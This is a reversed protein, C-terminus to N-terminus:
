HCVMKARHKTVNGSTEQLKEGKGSEDLFTVGYVFHQGFKQRPVDNNVLRKSEKIGNGSYRSNCRMRGKIKQRIGNNSHTSIVERYWRIRKPKSRHSEKIMMMKQDNRMRILRTMGRNNDFVM